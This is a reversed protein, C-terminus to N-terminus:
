RRRQSNMFVRRRKWQQVSRRVLNTIDGGFFLWLNLISMLVAARVPASGLILVYLYYVANILAIWKMKVPLIFFILLEREPNMMAYAFFMSLFVFSNTGVQTVAAALMAGLAGILFFLLFRRNGWQRELTTGIIYYFYMSLAAYLPSDAAPILLFTLLRWVQGRYVYPMYLAMRQYLGFSPFLLNLAYVGAMAFIVYQFFPFVPFRYIRRELRDLLKM